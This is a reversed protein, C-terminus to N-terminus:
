EPFPAIAAEDAHTDRVLCGLKGDIDNPTPPVSFALGSIGGRGLQQNLRIPAAGIAITAPQPLPLQLAQGVLGAQRDDDHDEHDGDLNQAPIHEVEGEGVRLFEDSVQEHPRRKESRGRRDPFM